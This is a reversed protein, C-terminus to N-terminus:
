TAPTGPVPPVPKINVPGMSYEEPGLRLSSNMMDEWSVQQGTYASERGMIAVLTSSAITNAENVPNNTRIATVLNIHSQDTMTVALNQTPKGEADLPYEFEWILNNNYDYISNQCNTYGKTGYILQETQNYCGNIQRHMGYYRGGNDFTYDISFFDYQDGTPRRHRGGFGVAKSPFKEFFWNLVDIQHVFQEVFCDGSLWCWNVWDKLMAEMDSWGTERNRHWLKGGFRLANGSILDGIAGNKIMGFTANFDRAHRMQTGAVVSLGASEAMKGTAMVSRVGVPDVAVPKEIFAHKRAQVATKFHEPRFHPPTAFIVVDVGSDIVYKYADFGIFCNRDPIDIGHAEKLSSRCKDIRDQFLDGLATIQLNPGANLFNIAAGTGRGGCGVLGAKLPTGDPARDLLVPSVYKEKKSNCSSLVAGAGIASIVGLAAAGELFERRSQSKPKLEM